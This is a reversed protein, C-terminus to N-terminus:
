LKQMENWLSIIFRQASVTFQFTFCHKGNSCIFGSIFFVCLLQGYANAPWSSISPIQHLVCLYQLQNPWKHAGSHVDALSLAAAHCRGLLLWPPWPSIHTKTSMKNKRLMERPFGIQIYCRVFGGRQEESGRWRWCRRCELDRQRWASLRGACVNTCDFLPSSSIQAICYLGQSFSNKKKKFKDNRPVFYLIFSITFGLTFLPVFTLTYM